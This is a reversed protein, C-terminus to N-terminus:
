SYNLLRLCKLMTLFMKQTNMIIKVGVNLISNIEHCTSRTLTSRTAVSRTLISRTVGLWLLYALKQKRYIVIRIYAGLETIVGYVVETLLETRSVRQTRRTFVVSQAAMRQEWHSREEGLYTTVQVRVKVPSNDFYTRNARDAPYSTRRSKTDM